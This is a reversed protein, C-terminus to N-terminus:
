CRVEGLVGSSNHHSSKQQAMRSSTTGPVGELAKALSWGQAPPNNAWYHDEQEKTAKEMDRQHRMEQQQQQEEQAKAMAERQSVYARYDNYKRELVPKLLDIENMADM